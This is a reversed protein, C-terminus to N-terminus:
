LAMEMKIERIFEKNSSIVDSRLEEYGMLNMKNVSKILHMDTFNRYKDYEYCKSLYLLQDRNLNKINKNNIGLEDLQNYATKLLSKKDWCDINAVLLLILEKRKENTM